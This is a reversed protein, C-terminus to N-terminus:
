TTTTINFVLLALSFWGEEPYVGHRRQHRYNQSANEDIQGMSLFVADLHHAIERARKRRM